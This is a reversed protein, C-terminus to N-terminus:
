TCCYSCTSPASTPRCTWAPCPGTVKSINHSLYVSRPLGASFCSSTALDTVTFVSPIAYVSQVKMHPPKSLIHFSLIGLETSTLESMLRLVASPLGGYSNEAGDIYSVKSPLLPIKCFWATGSTSDRQTALRTPDPNVWM